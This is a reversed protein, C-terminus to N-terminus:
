CWAEAKGCNIGKKMSKFPAVAHRQIYANEGQQVQVTVVRLHESSYQFCKCAISVVISESMNNWQPDIKDAHLNTIHLM